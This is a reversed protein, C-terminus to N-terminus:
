SAVAPVEEQEHHDTSSGMMFYNVQHPAAEEDSSESDDDDSHSDEEEEEEENVRKKSYRTKEIKVHSYFNLLLFCSLQLMVQKQKEDAENTATTAATGGTRWYHLLGTNGGYDEDKVAVASDARGDAM